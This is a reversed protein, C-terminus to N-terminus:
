QRAIRVSFESCRGNTNAFRFATEVPGIGSGGRSAQEVIDLVRQVGLASSQQDSRHLTFINIWDDLDCPSGAYLRYAKVAQRLHNFIAPGPSRISPRIAWLSWQRAQM